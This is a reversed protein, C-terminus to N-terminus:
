RWPRNRVDEMMGGLRFRVKVTEVEKETLGRFEPTASGVLFFTGAIGRCVPKDTLRGEEDCVLIVGPVGSPVTEIYGGVIGQMTELSYKVDRVEPEKSPECVVIKM